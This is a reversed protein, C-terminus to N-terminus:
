SRKLRRKAKTLQEKQNEIKRIWKSEDDPSLKGKSKLRSFKKQSQEYNSQAKEFNREAKQKQKLERKAKKLKKEAQKQRKEAKKQENEAKKIRKEKKLQEDLKGKIQNQEAESLTETVDINNKFISNGKVLYVSGGHTVEQATISMSFLLTLVSFIKILTM